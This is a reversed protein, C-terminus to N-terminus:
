SIFRDIWRAGVGTKEGGELLIASAMERVRRRGPARGSAEECLVWEDFFTEHEPSLRQVQRKTVPKPIAGRLRDQLTSRPVGYKAVTPKVAADKDVEEIAHEMLRKKHDPM